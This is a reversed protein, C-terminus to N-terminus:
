VEPKSAVESDASSARTALRPALKLAPPLFHDIEETSFTLDERRKLADQADAYAASNTSPATQYIAALKAQLQDRCKRIADLDVGGLTDTILSLYSERIPWIAAATERHKQAATGPDFGKMYANLTVTLLGVIATCVKIWYADNVLIVFLGSATIGSLAIQGYKVKRLQGDCQDAM